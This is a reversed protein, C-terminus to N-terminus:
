REGAKAPLDYVPIRRRTVLLIQSILWILTGGIVAGALWARDLTEELLGSASLVAFALGMLVVQLTYTLLAFMLAATPMVRAVANVGLSSGLVVLVLATGVLAGGAAASGQAFAGVLSLLLGLVLVVAAAGVLVSAGSDRAPQGTRPTRPVETTMM